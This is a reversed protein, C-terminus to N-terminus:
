DWLIKTHPLAARLWEWEALHSSGEFGTFMGATLQSNKYM